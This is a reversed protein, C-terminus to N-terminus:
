TTWMQEKRLHRKKRYKTQRIQQNLINDIKIIKPSDVVTTKMWESIMSITVLIPQQDSNKMKKMKWTKSHNNKYLQSQLRKRRETNQQLYIITINEEKWSVNYTSWYISSPMYTQFDLVWLNKHYIKHM